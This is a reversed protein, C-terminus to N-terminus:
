FMTNQKPVALYLLKVFGYCGKASVKLPLKNSFFCLFCITYFFSIDPVNCRTSLEARLMRSDLICECACECEFVCVIVCLFMASSQKKWGIKIKTLIKETKTQTRKEFRCNFYGTCHKPAEFKANQVFSLSICFPIWLPQTEVPPPLHRWLGCFQLQLAFFLLLLSLSLSFFLFAQLCISFSIPSFLKFYIFAFWKRSACIM